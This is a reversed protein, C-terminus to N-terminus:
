KAPPPYHIVCRPVVVGVVCRLKLRLDFVQFPDDRGETSLESVHPFLPVFPLAPCLSDAKGCGVLRQTANVQLGWSPNREAQRFRFCHQTNFM